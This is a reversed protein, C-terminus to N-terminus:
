GLGPMNLDLLQRAMVSQVCWSRLNQAKEQLNAQRSEYLMTTVEPLNEPTETELAVFGHFDDFFGAADCCKKHCLEPHCFVVFLERFYKKEWLDTVRLLPYLYLPYQTFVNKLVNKCSETCIQAKKCAMKAPFLACFCAFFRLFACFHVFIRWKAGVCAVGGNVIVGNAHVWVLHAVVRLGLPLAQVVSTFQWIGARLVLGFEQIGLAQLESPTHDDRISVVKKECPPLVM